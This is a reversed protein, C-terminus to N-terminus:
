APHTMEVSLDHLTQRQKDPMGTQSTTLDHLEQVYTHLQEIETDTFERDKHAFGALSRSGSGQVSVVVGFVMGHEASQTLVGQPDQDALESWRVTGTNQSCWHLTPDALVFGKESYVKIWSRPYTQLLFEPSHQRLQFAVAFGAPSLTEAAKLLDEIRGFGAM